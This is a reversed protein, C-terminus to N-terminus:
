CYDYGDLRLRSKPDNSRVSLVHISRSGNGVDTAAFREVHFDWHSRWVRGVGDSCCGMLWLGADMFMEHYMGGSCNQELMIQSAHRATTNSQVHPAGDNERVLASLTPMFLKILGM